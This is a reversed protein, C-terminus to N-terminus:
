ARSHPLSPPFIATRKQDLHNKRKGRRELQAEALSTIRDDVDRRISGHGTGICALGLLAIGLGLKLGGISRLQLAMLSTEEAWSSSNSSRAGIEGPAGWIVVAAGAALGLRSWQGIKM